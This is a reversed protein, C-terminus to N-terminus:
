ERGLDLEYVYLDQVLAQDLPALTQDLRFLLMPSPNAMQAMLTDLPGQEVKSAEAVLVGNGLSFRGFSMQDPAPLTDLYRGEASLIGVSYAGLGVALTEGDPSWEINPTFLRFMGDADGGSLHLDYFTIDGREGPVTRQTLYAMRRGDPSIRVVDASIGLASPEKEERVDAAYLQGDRSFVLVSSDSWDASSAEGLSVMSQADLNYVFLGTDALLAVARSDPAWRADSVMGLPGPTLPAAALGGEATKAMLMPVEDAMYFLTSNDPSFRPTGPVREALRDPSLDAANGSLVSELLAVIEGLRPVQATALRNPQGGELTSLALSYTPAPAGLMGGLLQDLGYKAVPRVLAHYFVVDGSRSVAPGAEIGALSTLQRLTYGRLVLYTEPVPTPSVPVPTEAAAPEAATEQALPSLEAASAEQPGSLTVVLTELSSPSQQEESGGLVLGPLKLVAASEPEPMSRPGYASWLASGALTGAAAAVFVVAGTALAKGFARKKKPVTCGEKPTAGAEEDMIGDGAAPVAASFEGSPPQKFINRRLLLIEKWHSKLM